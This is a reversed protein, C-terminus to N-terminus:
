RGARQELEDLCREAENLADIRHPYIDRMMEISDRLNMAYRPNAACRELFDSRIGTADTVWQPLRM